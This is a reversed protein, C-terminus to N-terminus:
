VQVEQRVKAAHQIARVIKDYGTCRCLNGALAEQIAARTPLESQELLAWATVVIGPTCAGCQVGGAEVFREVFESAPGAALAEVTDVTRGRCQMLPVLCSVVPEGDMLVACAGCEGEGCGEKTGTLGQQERLVDLLRDMPHGDVQVPHGNLVFEVKM